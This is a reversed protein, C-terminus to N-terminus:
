DEDDDWYEEDPVYNSPEYFTVRDLSIYDTKEKESDPDEYAVQVCVPVKFKNRIIKKVTGYQSTSSSEVWCGVHINDLMNRYTPTSLFVADCDKIRKMNKIVSIKDQNM